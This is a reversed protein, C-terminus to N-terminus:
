GKPHPPNPLHIPNTGKYFSLGCPDETGETMHLCLSFIATQSGPAPGESSVLEALVRTKFKGAELLTLFFNRNNKVVWERINQELRMFLSHCIDVWYGPSHLHHILTGAAKSHQITFAFSTERTCDNIAAMSLDSHTNPQNHGIECQVEESYWKLCKSYTTSPIIGNKVLETETTEKETLIFLKYKYKRWICM